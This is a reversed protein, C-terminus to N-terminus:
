APTLRRPRGQEKRLPVELDRDNPEGTIGVLAEILAQVTNSLRIGGRAVSQIALGLRQNEAELRDVRQKLSYTYAANFVLAFTLAFAAVRFRPQPNPHQVDQAM